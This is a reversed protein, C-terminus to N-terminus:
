CLAAFWGIVWVFMVSGKMVAIGVRSKSWIRLGSSLSYCVCLDCWAPTLSPDRTPTGAARRKTPKMEQVCHSPFWGERGSDVARGEWYGQEGVSIVALM